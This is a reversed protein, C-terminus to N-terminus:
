QTYANILYYCDRIQIFLSRMEEYSDGDTAKIMQRIAADTAPVVSTGQRVYIDEVTQYLSLVPFLM